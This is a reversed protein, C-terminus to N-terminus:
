NNVMLWQDFARRAALSVPQRMSRVERLSSMLRLEASFAARMSM